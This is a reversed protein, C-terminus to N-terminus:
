LLLLVLLQWEHHRRGEGLTEYRLVLMLALKLLHNPCCTLVLLRQLEIIGRIRGRSVCQVM